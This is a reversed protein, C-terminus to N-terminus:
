VLQTLLAALERRQREDLRTALVTTAVLDREFRAVARRGRTTLAVLKARRDVPSVRREVLGQEELRGLVGALNSPDLRCAVALDGVTIPHEIARLVVAQQKSLGVGSAAREFEGVLVASAAFLAEALATLERGRDDM